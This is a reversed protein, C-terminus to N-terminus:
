LTKLKDLAALVQRVQYPKAKGSDDQLSIRPDGQRPTKFVTHSCLSHFFSSNGFCIVTAQSASLNLKDNLVIISFTPMYLLLHFFM